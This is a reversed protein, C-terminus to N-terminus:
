RVGGALLFESVNSWVSKHCSDPHLVTKGPALIGGHYFDRQQIQLGFVCLQAVLNKGREVADALGRGEHLARFDLDELALEGIEAADLVTYSETAPRGRQM